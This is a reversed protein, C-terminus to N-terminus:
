GPLELARGEPNVRYTDVLIVNKLFCILQTLHKSDVLIGLM